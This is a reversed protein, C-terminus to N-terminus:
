FNKTYGTVLPNEHLKAPLKTFYRVRDILLFSKKNIDFHHRNSTLFFLLLINRIIKARM